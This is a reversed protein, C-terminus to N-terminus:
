ELRSGECRPVILRAGRGKLVEISRHQPHDHHDHSILVADIKGLQEFPLPPPFWRTPGVWTFPSAREGFAPDTLLRIGDIEVWTSSHGFWTVRLGSSPPTQLAQGDSVVVPVPAGERPGAVPSSSLLATIGAVDNFMPQANQFSGDRWQPSRRMREARAGSAGKGFAVCGTAVVVVVVVVFAAFLSLVANRLKKKRSTM